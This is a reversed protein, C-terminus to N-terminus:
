ADSSLIVSTFRWTNSNSSQRKRCAANPQERRRANLQGAEIAMRAYKWPPMATAADPNMAITASYEAMAKQVFDARREGAAREAQTAYFQALGSHWKPNAPELSQAWKLLEQALAAAEAQRGMLSAAISGRMQLAGAVAGVLEADDSALLMQKMEAARSSEPQAPNVAIPLGNQNLGTVGVLQFAYIEGLMLTWIPNMPELSRAKVMLELSREPELERFFNAANAL